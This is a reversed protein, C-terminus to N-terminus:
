NSIIKKYPFKYLDKFLILSISNKIDNWLDISLSKNKLKEMLHIKYYKLGDDFKKNIILDIM